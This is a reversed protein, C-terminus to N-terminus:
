SVEPREYIWIRGDTRSVIVQKEQFKLDTLAEVEEGEGRVSKVVIPPISPVANSGLFEHLNTTFPNSNNKIDNVFNSTNSLVPRLDMDHRYQQQQQLYLNASVTNSSKTSGISRSSSLNRVHSQIHYRGSRHQRGETTKPRSLMRPSFDWFILNGDEGVSGLRYSFEDCNWNDFEVKNVWSQHGHGRAIATKTLMSWITVLDDKGGTALYKGDPSFGCCTYGACYSPFIDTVVETELNLFRMYGDESTIVLTQRDPSFTVSTLPLNSLKYVAVPNFKNVNNNNNNGTSGGNVNSISGPGYLSKIIRFTETSRQDQHQLGGNSAFGGDDRDKDFIIVMGNAHLTIFYNASGPVWKIDTVASRVVDGNKNIRNYRNSISDIWLADGSSMGLVLDLGNSSRTYQNVDHCLPLTKTFLIKSLSEKTSGAASSASWDFWCFSRGVNTWLFFDEQERENLKKAINEHVITKSIFSSNNKSLSSKPKRRKAEKSNEYPILVALPGLAGGISDPPLRSIHANNETSLFSDLPGIGGPNAFPSIQNNNNVISAMAGRKKPVPLTNSAMSPEDEKNTFFSWTNKTKNAGNTTQAAPLLPNNLTPNLLDQDYEVTGPVPTKRLATMSIKPGKNNAQASNIPALPNFVPPPPDAPHNLPIPINISKCATYRGEPAFFSETEANLYTITNIAELNAQAESKSHVLPSTSYHGNLKQTPPLIFM